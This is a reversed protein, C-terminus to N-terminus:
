ISTLATFDEKQALGSLAELLTRLEGADRFRIELHFDPGEFAPPPALRLRPHQALGLGALGQEFAQQAASLRPFTWAKLRRRVQRAKEQSNLSDALCATLEPRLLIDAL